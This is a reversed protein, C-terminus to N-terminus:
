EVSAKHVSHILFVGVFCHSFFVSLGSGFHAFSKLLCKVFIIGLHGTHRNFPAQHFNFGRQFVM